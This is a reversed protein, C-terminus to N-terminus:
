LMRRATEQSILLKRKQPHPTPPHTFRHTPEQTQGQTHVWTHADSLSAWCATNNYTLTLLGRIPLQPLSALKSWLGLFLLLLLFSPPLPSCCTTWFLSSTFCPQLIPSGPHRNISPGVMLKLVSCSFVGAERGGGSPWFQQFMSRKNYINISTLTTLYCWPYM